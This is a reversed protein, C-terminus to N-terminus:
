GMVISIVDATKAVHALIVGVLGISYEGLTIGVVTQEVIDAVSKNYRSIDPTIIAGAIFGGAFISTGAALSLEPGPTPLAILEGFSFHSLVNILSYFVVILFLSCHYICSRRIFNNRIRCNFYNTFWYIYGLGMCTRWGITAIGRCISRKTNWVLRVYLHHSSFKSIHCGVKWIWDM